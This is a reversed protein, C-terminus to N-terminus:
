SEWMRSQFVETENGVGVGLELKRGTCMRPFLQSPKLLTLARQSESLGTSTMPASPSHALLHLSKRVTDKNRKKTEAEGYLCWSM